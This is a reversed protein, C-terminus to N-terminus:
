VALCDRCGADNCCECAPGDQESDDTMCDECGDCVMVMPWENRPALKTEGYPMVKACSDCEVELDDLM